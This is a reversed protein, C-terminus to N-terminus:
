RLLLLCTHPSRAFHGGNERCPSPQQMNSSTAVFYWKAMLLLLLLLATHDYFSAASQDV